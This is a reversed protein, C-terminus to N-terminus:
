IALNYHVLVYLIHIVSQYVSLTICCFSCVRTPNGHKIPVKYKYIQSDNQKEKQM